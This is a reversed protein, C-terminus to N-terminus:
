LGPDPMEGGDRAPIDQDRGLQIQGLGQNRGQVICSAWGQGGRAVGVM